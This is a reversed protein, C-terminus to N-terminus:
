SFSLPCITSMGTQRSAGSSLRGFFASDVGRIRYESIKSGLAGLAGFKRYLERPFTEAEDWDNAFPVIERDVFERLTSRFVEHEASFYHPLPRTEIM